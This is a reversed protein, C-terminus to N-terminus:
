RLIDVLLHTGVIKSQSLTTGTMFDFILVSKAEKSLLAVTTGEDDVFGFDLV